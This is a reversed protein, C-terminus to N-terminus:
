PYAYEVTQQAPQCDTRHYFERDSVTALESDQLVILTGISTLQAYLYVSSRSLVFEYDRRM